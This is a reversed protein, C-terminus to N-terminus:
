KRLKRYTSTSSLAWRSFIPMKKHNKYKKFPYSKHYDCKMYLITPKLLTLCSKPFCSESIVKKHLWEHFSCILQIQRQKHLPSAISFNCSHGKWHHYIKIYSLNKVKFTKNHLCYNQESFLFLMEIQYNSLKSDVFQTSPLSTLSILVFSNKLTFNRKTKINFHFM